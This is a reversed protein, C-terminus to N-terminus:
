MLGSAKLNKVLLATNRLQKTLKYKEMKYDIYVQPKGKDIAKEYKAKQRALSRELSDVKGKEAKHKYKAYKKQWWSVVSDTEADTGLQMYWVCQFSNCTFTQFENQSPVFASGDKKTSLLASEGDQPALANAILFLVTLSGGPTHAALTPRSDALSNTCCKVESSKAPPISM